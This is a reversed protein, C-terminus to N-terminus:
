LKSRYRLKRDVDKNGRAPVTSQNGFKAARHHDIKSQIHFYKKRREKQHEDETKWLLPNSIGQQEARHDDAVFEVRLSM